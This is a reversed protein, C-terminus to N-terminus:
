TKFISHLETPNLVLGELIKKLHFKVIKVGSEALGNHWPSYAPSFSFKLLDGKGRLFIVQQDKFKEEVYMIADEMAEVETSKDLFNNVIKAYEANSVKKSSAAKLKTLLDRSTLKVCIEAGKTFSTQNDSLVSRPLGRTSVFNRSCRLFEEASADLAVELHIGRTARCIFLIGWSKGGKKYEGEETKRSRRGLQHKVPIPGFADIAIHYFPPSPTVNEMPVNGLLQHEPRKNVRCKVCRHLISKITRKANPLYFEENLITLTKDLGGHNAVNHCHRVMKLTLPCFKNFEEENMKPDFDFKPLVVPCRRSWAVSKVNQLRSSIRLVVNDDIFPLKGSLPGNKFQRGELIDKIEKYYSQRQYERIIRWKCNEIETTSLRLERVRPNKCNNVVRFWWGIRKLTNSWGSIDNAMQILLNICKPEQQNVKAIQIKGQAKGSRKEIISEYKRYELNELSGPVRFCEPGNWWLDSDILAQAKAGRSAIDAPNLKTNIYFFNEGDYISKIKSVRNRM